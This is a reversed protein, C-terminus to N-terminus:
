ATLKVAGRAGACGGNRTLVSGEHPRYRRDPRHGVRGRFEEFAERAAPVLREEFLHASRDADVEVDALALLAPQHRHVFAVHPHRVPVAFRVARQPRALLHEVPDRASLRVRHRCHKPALDGDVSIELEDDEELAEEGARSVFAFM